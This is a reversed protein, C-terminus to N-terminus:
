SAHAGQNVGELDVRLVAHDSYAQPSGAFSCDGVAWEYAADLIRLGPSVLAHDISTIEGKKSKFSGGRGTAVQWGRGELARVTRSRASTNFDGIVVAPGSQLPEVSTSVWEWYRSVARPVGKFMPRRFGVLDMEATQVHLWNPATANSLGANCSIRGIRIPLRSAILVQNQGAIYDSVRCHKIGANELQTLFATNSQTHVYETLVVVDPSLECLGTAM